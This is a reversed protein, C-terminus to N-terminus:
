LQVPDFMRIVHYAEACPYGAEMGRFQALVKLGKESWPHPFQMLENRYQSFAKIKRDITDTIDVYYNAQFPEANWASTNPVECGLITVPKRKPRGIIKAVETVIRHDKNLDTDVHTIIVDPEIGLKFVKNAIDAIPYQDFKQDKYGLFHVDDVGLVKCALYAHKKNNQKKGRVSILGDSVIVVSVPHKQEVLKCIYGGAGLSEDDAHAVLVLIRKM